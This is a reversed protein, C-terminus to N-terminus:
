PRLSSIGESPLANHGPPCFQGSLLTVRVFTCGALFFRGNPGRGYFDGAWHRHMMIVDSRESKGTLIQLGTM